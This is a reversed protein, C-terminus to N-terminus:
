GNISGVIDEYGKSELEQALSFDGSLIIKGDSIVHVFDPKVYNLIRNYHTILLIGTGTKAIKNIGDSIVKLADIDTGSDPEDLIAINPQLVAMQLIENRKKEGGSFGENLYRGTFSEMNLLKMKEKVINNFVNFEMNYKKISSYAQKLLQTTSVGSVESPYQFALFLGLKAREDTKLNIIDQNNFLIEGKTIKYKSHGMIVNSLSTKGSGNPGMLAHVENSKIVLNLGKIIEKGEITVHLDKIELTNIM